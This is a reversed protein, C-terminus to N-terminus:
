GRHRRYSILVEIFFDKGLPQDRRTRISRLVAEEDETIGLMLRTREDNLLEELGPHLRAQEVPEYRLQEAEAVAHPAPEPSPRDPYRVDERWFDAPNVGLVAALKRVTDARPEEHGNEILSVTARDIGARDALAQQTLGRMRRLRRMTRGFRLTDDNAVM